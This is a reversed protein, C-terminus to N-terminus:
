KWLFAHGGYFNWEENWEQFDLILEMLHQVKNQPSIFNSTKTNSAVVKYLFVVLINNPTQSLIYFVLKARTYVSIGDQDTQVPRNRNDNKFNCWLIQGWWTHDLSRIRVPILIFNCQQTSQLQFKFHAFTIYSANTGPRLSREWFPM